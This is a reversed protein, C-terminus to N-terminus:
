TRVYTGWVGWEKQNGMRTTFAAWPRGSALAMQCTAVFHHVQMCANM